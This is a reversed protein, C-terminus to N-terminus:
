PRPIDKWATGRCVYGITHHDVGFHIAIKTYSLGQSRLELILPIDEPKLKAAHHETGRKFRKKQTADVMNDHQTGLRLHSINVCQPTDCIHMVILDDPITGYHLEYSYRHAFRNNGLIRLGIVGYGRSITGTWLWCTDTKHVRQWFYREIEIPDTIRHPPM